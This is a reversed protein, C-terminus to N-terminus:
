SGFAVFNMRRDTVSELITSVIIKSFSELMSVSVLGALSVESIYLTFAYNETKIINIKIKLIINDIKVSLPM